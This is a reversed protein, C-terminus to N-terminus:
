IDEQDMQGKEIEIIRHLGAMRFLREIGPEIARASVRGNRRLMTKYRGIIMGIGSSDMFSVDSFDFVLHEISKDNLLTEISERLAESVCHDIEGQLCVTLQDGTKCSKIM